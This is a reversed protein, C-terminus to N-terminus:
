LTIVYDPPNPADGSSIPGLVQISADTGTCISYVHVKRSINLIRLVKVM